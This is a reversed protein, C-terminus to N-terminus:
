PNPLMDASLRQPPLQPEEPPAAGRFVQEARTLLRLRDPHGLPLRMVEDLWRNVEDLREITSNM